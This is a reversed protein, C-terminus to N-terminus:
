ACGGYMTAHVLGVIQRIQVLHKMSVAGQHTLNHRQKKLLRGLQALSHNGGNFRLLPAVQMRKGVFQLATDFHEAQVFDKRHHHFDLTHAFVAFLRGREWMQDAHQKHAEAM